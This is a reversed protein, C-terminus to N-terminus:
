KNFYKQPNFVKPLTYLYAKAKEFYVTNYPSLFLFLLVRIFINIFSIFQVILTEAISHHVKYFKIKNFIMNSISVKYNKIASKGIHHIVVAEPYYMIKLGAKKIRYCYDIDEIWFLTEDLFGITEFLERRFIMAAGSVSEPEFSLTFNKEKYYKDSILFNLYLMEALIYKIKPFRWASYQLSGDTNLLKPSVLAIDNNNELYHTLKYLADGTIETDPNLMLIYKGDAIKFAQNNAAPFGANLKNAIIKVDPFRESIVKISNDQSANDVVIIEFLGFYSKYISEICKVLYLETNYNVIVISLDTKTM